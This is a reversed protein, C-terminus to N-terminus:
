TESRGQSDLSAAMHDIFSGLNRCRWDLTENAPMTPTTSGRAIMINMIRDALARGDYNRNTPIAEGGPAARERGRKAAIAAVSFAYPNNWWSSRAEEENESNLSAALGGARVMVDGLLILLAAFEKGYILQLAELLVDQDRFSLEIRFEAEQSQSRGSDKAAQDLLAKLRSTVRLGLSVREGPKPQRRRPRGRTKAM